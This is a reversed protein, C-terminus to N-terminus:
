YEERFSNTKNKLSELADIWSSYGATNLSVHRWSIDGYAITVVEQMERENFDITHPMHPSVSKIIANSLIVEYFFEHGGNSSLRYFKLTCTLPTGDVCAQSLLPSCKDMRKIITIPTHISQNEYGIFHSYSLVTIEDRHNEQYAQGMSSETNCGQTILGQRLSEIKLYATTTM